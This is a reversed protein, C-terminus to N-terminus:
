EIRNLKIEFNDNTLIIISDYIKSKYKGDVESGIITLLGDETAVWKFIEFGVDTYLIGSGDKLFEFRIDHNEDLVWKGVLLSTDTCNVLGFIFFIGVGWIIKNKM